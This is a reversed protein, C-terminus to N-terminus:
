CSSKMEVLSLSRYAAGTRTLQSSMLNITNVKFSLDCNIETNSIVHALVQKEAYSAYEKIRALTLHATFQRKEPPFGLPILQTEIKNQIVNLADLEGGLGVWVIQINKLSPFVSLGAFNLTIPSENHLASRVAETISDIKSTDINGLFKLTLHINDPSVWKVPFQCTTKLKSEIQALNIKVSEPLEISIFSRIQHM